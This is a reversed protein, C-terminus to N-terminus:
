ADQIGSPNKGGAQAMHRVVVAAAESVDGAIAKM